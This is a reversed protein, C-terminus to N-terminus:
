CLKWTRLQSPPRFGSRCSSMMVRLFHSFRAVKINAWTGSKLTEEVVADIVDVFYRDLFCSELQLGDPFEARMFAKPTAINYKELTIYEECVGSHACVLAKGKRAM